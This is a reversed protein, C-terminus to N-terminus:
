TAVKPRSARSIGSSPIKWGCAPRCKKLYNLGHVPDTLEAEGRCIPDRFGEIDAAGDGVSQAVHSSSAAWDKIDINQWFTLSFSEFDHPLIQRIVSPAQAASVLTGIRIDQHNKM